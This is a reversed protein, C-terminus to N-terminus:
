LKLQHLKDYKEKQTASRFNSFLFMFKDKKHERHKLRFNTKEKDNPKFGNMQFAHSYCNVAKCADKTEIVLYVRGIFPFENEKEGEMLLVKLAYAVSKSCMGEKFMAVDNIAITNPYCSDKPYL